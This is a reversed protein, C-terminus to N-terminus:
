NNLKNWLIRIPRIMFMAYLLMFVGGLIIAFIVDRTEVGIGLLHVLCFACIGWIINVCTIQGLDKWPFITSFTVDMIRCTFCLQLVDVLLISILSAIAPGIFGLIEYFVFNLVVNLLLSILSSWLIMKTKGVANLVMGFYTTRLLLVLSYVIFVSVGPLYKDSYLFTMVQPAFAICATAFFCMFIYSLRITAGWLGVATAKDGSKISRAMQPLLVATLSTAIFVLPLEKGANAYYALSETDMLRGIMLKDVEINVTGVLTALGIPISYAFIRKILYIDITFCIGRELRFVLIYIAVSLALNGFLFAIMYDNFSMGLVKIITVSLFAILATAINIVMLKKTKGYVVLVNSIGSITVNAFPYLAFFYAFDKLAPNNFYSELLPMIAVLIGGIIFCLCTTLTYYVSLFNRRQKETDAVALFYNISSPLGFMLFAVALSVVINIQSYTGYEEVTRFRSLLMNSVLSIVLTIVKAFTLIAADKGIRNNQAM